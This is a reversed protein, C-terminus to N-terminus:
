YQLKREPSALGSIFIVELGSIRLATRPTTPARNQV